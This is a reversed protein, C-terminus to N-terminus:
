RLATNEIRFVIRHLLSGAIAIGSETAPRLSWGRVTELAALDLREHGSSEVLEVRVVAGSPSVHIRVLVIGEHGLRLSVRPYDPDPGSLIVPATEVSEVRAALPVPEPLPPEEIQPPELTRLPDLPLNAWLDATDFVDTLEPEPLPEPPPEETEIPEGEPEPLEEPEPVRDPELEEPPAPESPEFDAVAVSASFWRRVEKASPGLGLAVATVLLVCHVAVSTALCRRFGIVPLLRRRLLTTAQAAPRATDQRDM